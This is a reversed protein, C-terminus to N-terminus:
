GRKDAGYDPHPGLRNRVVREEFCEVCDVGDIQALVQLGESRYLRLCGLALEEANSRARACVMSSKAHACPEKYNVEISELRELMGNAREVGRWRSRVMDAVVDYRIKPPGTLALNRLKPLFDSANHIPEPQTYRWDDPTEELGKMKEVEMEGPTIWTLPLCASELNTYGINDETENFRPTSLDVLSLRSINPTTQNLSEIIQDLKRHFIRYDTATKPEVLTISVAQLSLEIGSQSVLSAFHDSPWVDGTYSLNVLAPLQLRALMEGGRRGEVNLERLAHHACVHGEFHDIPIVKFSHLNPSRLLIRYCDLSSGTFSIHQLQDWPLISAIPQMVMLVFRLHVVRLQPCINFTDLIHWDAIPLTELRHLQALRGRASLLERCISPPTQLSLNRWQHARRLLMSIIPRSEQGQPGPADPDLYRLEISLPSNKARDLYIAGKEVMREVM